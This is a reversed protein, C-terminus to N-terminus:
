CAAPIGLQNRDPKEKRPGLWAVGSSTQRVEGAGGRPAYFLAPQSTVANFALQGAAVAERCDLIAEEEAKSTGEYLGFFVRIM